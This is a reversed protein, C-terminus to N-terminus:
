TRESSVPSERASAPASPACYGNQDGSLREMPKKTVPLNFVMAAAPPGASVIQAAASPFPPLQLGAPTMTNAGLGM